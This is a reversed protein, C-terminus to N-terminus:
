DATSGAEAVANTKNILQSAVTPDATEGDAPAAYKSGKALRAKVVVVDGAKVDALDVTQDANTDAVVLRAGAFDFTV